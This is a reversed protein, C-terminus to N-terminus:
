TLHLFSFLLHFVTLQKKIYYFAVDHAIKPGEAIRISGKPAKISTELQERRIKKWNKDRFSHQYFVLVDGAQLQEWIEAVEDPKVHKDSTKSPSLGTDPDLFVIRASGKNETLFKNANKYYNDRDKHLFLNNFVTVKMGGKISEANLINRFHHLVEAPMDKEISGIKIKDFTSPTYYAIQLIKKCHYKEALHYLVAWKVLDRKDAYWQDKM